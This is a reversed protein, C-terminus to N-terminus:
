AFIREMEKGDLPCYFSREGIVRSWRGSMTVTFTHGDKDMEQCDICTYKVQTSPSSSKTKVDTKIASHPYDPLQRVMEELKIQLIPGATTAKPKGELGLKDAARQFIPGHAHKCDDAVHILEHGLVDLIREPESLEPSIFIESTSDKSRDAPWAEGLTGCKGKPWGRSVRIRDPLVMDTLQEFPDRWIELAKQLWSEEIPSIPIDGGTLLDKGHDIAEKGHVLARAETVTMGDKILKARDEQAALIKFVSWSVNDTCVSKEYRSAVYRYDQLADLAVGIEDAYEELSREAYHTEVELALDGLKWQSKAAQKGEKVLTNYARAM